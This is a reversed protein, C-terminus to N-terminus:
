VKRRDDLLSQKRRNLRKLMEQNKSVQPPPQDGKAPAPTRKPGFIKQVFKDSRDSIHGM